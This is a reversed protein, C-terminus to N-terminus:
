CIWSMWVTEVSNQRCKGYCVNLDWNILERCSKKRLGAREIGHLMMIPLTNLTFLTNATHSRQKYINILRDAQKTDAWTAFQCSQFCGRQLLLDRVIYRAKATLVLTHFVSTFHTLISFCFTWSNQLLFLFFM